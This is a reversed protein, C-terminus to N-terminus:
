AARAKEQDARATQQNWAFTMLDALAKQQNAFAMANDAEQSAEQLANIAANREHQMAQSQAYLGNLIAVVEEQSYLRPGGVSNQESPFGHSSM